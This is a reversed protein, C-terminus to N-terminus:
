FFGLPDCRFLRLVNKRIGLIQRSENNAFHGGQEEQRCEESQLSLKKPRGKERPLNPSGRNKKKQNKGVPLMRVVVLQMTENAFHPMPEFMETRKKIEYCVRGIGTVFCPMPRNVFLM